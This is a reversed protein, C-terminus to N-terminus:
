SNEYIARMTENIKNLPILFALVSDTRSQKPIVLPIETFNTKVKRTKQAKQKNASKLKVNNKRLMSYFKGNSIGLRKRIDVAPKGEKYESIAIQVEKDSLIRNDRM